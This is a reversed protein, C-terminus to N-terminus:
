GIDTRWVRWFGAVLPVVMWLVLATGAHAWQTADFLEDPLPGTAEAVSVWPAVDRLAPIAGLAAVGIPAAFFLVLAPASALMVAGFGIGTVVGIAISLATQGLLGISLSWTGDVGPAVIATAVAASVLALGLAALSLLLGAVLKALLVRGRGPTLTFTIFSTRQTWESTVLLIGVVPLLVSAPAVAVSLMAQLTQDGPKAFIAVLVLAAITLLGISLLLWFGARTDVTKRLEVATLTAFGPRADAPSM